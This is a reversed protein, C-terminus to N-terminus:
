GRIVPLADQLCLFALMHWLLEASTQFFSSGQFLGTIARIANPTTSTLGKEKAEPPNTAVAAYV